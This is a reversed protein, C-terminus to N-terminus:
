TVLYFGGGGGTTPGVSAASGRQAEAEEDMLHSFVSGTGPSGWPQVVAGM